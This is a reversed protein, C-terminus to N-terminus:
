KCTTSSKVNSKNPVRAVGSGVSKKDFFRYVMSTLGRQCGDCNPNSAIKFAKDKLIKDSKTRKASDKYKGDATHHQFCTKDPDNKYIYDTNGTQM